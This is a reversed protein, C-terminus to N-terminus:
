VAHQTGQVVEDTAMVDGHSEMGAIIAGPRSLRVSSRQPGGPSHVALELEPEARRGAFRPITSALGSLLSCSLRRTPALLDSEKRRTSKNSSPPSSPSPRPASRRAARTM